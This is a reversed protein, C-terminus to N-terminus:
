PQTMPLSTEVNEPKAASEEIQTRFRPIAQQMALAEADDPVLKLIERVQYDATSLQEVAVSTNGQAHSLAASRILALAMPSRYTVDDPYDQVLRVLRSLAEAYHLIAPGPQGLAEQVRAATLHVQSLEFVLTRSPESSSYVSLQTVAEQLVAEAAQPENTSLLGTALVQQSHALWTAAVPKLSDNSEAQLYKRSYEVREKAAAIYATMDGGTMAAKMTQQSVLSALKLTEPSDPERKLLLSM